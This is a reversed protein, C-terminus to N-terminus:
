GVLCSTLPNRSGVFIESTRRQPQSLSARCVSSIAPRPTTKSRRSCLRWPSGRGRQRLSRQRLPGPTRTRNADAQEVADNLAPIQTTADDILATVLERM